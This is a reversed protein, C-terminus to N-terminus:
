RVDFYLPPREQTADVGAADTPRPSATVDPSTQAVLENLIASHRVKHRVLREHYEADIWPNYMVAESEGPEVKFYCPAAVRAIDGAEWLRNMGGFSEFTMAWIDLPITVNSRIAGLMPRSLDGVPNLSDAGLSEVIRIAAPNAHGTYVSVKFISDTPIDGASRAKNLIDLVGEDWVLVGRLGCSFMRLYDDLLYRLNDVGRVRRGATVGETSLAQRGTDWGTRPGPCAIVEIANEAALEAFATLEGRDLLTSGGGFSVVRHIFVGQKSSEDLLTELTSLRELGSIEIRYHAGDAFRLPSPSLAYDDAIPLGQAALIGAADTPHGNRRDHTDPTPV